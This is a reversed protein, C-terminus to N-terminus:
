ILWWETFSIGVFYPKEMYCIHFCNLILWKFLGYIMLDFRKLWDIPLVHMHGREKVFGFCENMDKLMRSINMLTWQHENINTLPKVKLGLIAGHKILIMYLRLDFIMETLMEIMEIMKNRQGAPEVPDCLHCKCDKRYLM